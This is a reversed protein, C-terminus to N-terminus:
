KQTGNEGGKDATAAAAAAEVKANIKKIEETYHKYGNDIFNSLNNEFKNKEEVPLQNWIDTIAIRKEEISRLDMTEEFDAVIQPRIRNMVALANEISGYKELNKYINAENASEQIFDYIKIPKGYKIFSIDKNFKQKKRRKDGLKYFKM